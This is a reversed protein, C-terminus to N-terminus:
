LLNEDGRQNNNKRRRASLSLSLFAWGLCRAFESQKPLPSRRRSRSLHSKRRVFDSCKAPTARCNAESKLPSFHILSMRQLQILEERERELSRKKRRAPQGERSLLDDAAAALTTRTCLSLSTGIHFHHLESQATALQSTSSHRDVNSSPSHEFPACSPPSSREGARSADNKAGVLALKKRRRPWRVRLSLFVTRTESLLCVNVGRSFVAVRTSVSCLSLSLSLFLSPAQRDRMSVFVIIMSSSSPTPQNGERKGSQRALSVVRIYRKERERKRNLRQDRWCSAAFASTATQLAIPSYEPLDNIKENVQADIKAPIM